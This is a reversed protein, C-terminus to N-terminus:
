GIELFGLKRYLQIAPKLRKETDLRMSIYGFDKAVAIVERALRFGIGTGQLDKKVFLRKMECIKGKVIPRMAVGGVVRRQKWALLVRGEPAAYQGPM